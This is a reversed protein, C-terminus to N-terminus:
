HAPSVPSSFPGGEVLELEHLDPVPQPRRQETLLERLPQEFFFEGAGFAPRLDDLWCATEDFRAFFPRKCWSPDRAQLFSLVFVVEGNIEATGEIMVKGPLASMVPGRATRALGSLQTVAGRYIEFARHLPLKFYERAGTNREVFMYYPCCGLHVQREWMRAWVDADDNIHRVLPAQTRIVAGAARIRGIAQEVAPTALERDHNFHSMVALHKGAAIIREFLRLLDDGDKDTLFRYPWFSLSKTGIRVTQIHDFAPTLLPEIYRALVDARMVMPDGGTILVDTIERHRRLYECFRMAEDTAFKLDDLGVFQAWRFCFTCYAHCTQGASPFVLCTERYKHQVGAVARGGLLPVNNQLQGEPHPNLQRRIEDAVGRVATGNGSGNLAAAMRDFHEPILMEPQPFTLQFVPDDPVDSWDILEEVVYNNTRFPLVHAVVNMAARREAPLRQLQPLTDIDRQTYFKLKRPNMTTM